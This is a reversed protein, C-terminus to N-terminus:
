APLDVNGKREPMAQRRHQCEACQDNADPRGDDQLPIANVNCETAAPHEVAYEGVPAVLKHKVTHKAERSSRGAPQLITVLVAVRSQNDSGHEKCDDDTDSGGPLSNAEGNRGLGD